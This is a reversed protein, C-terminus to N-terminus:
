TWTPPEVEGVFEAFDPFGALEPVETEAARLTLMAGLAIKAAAMRCSPQWGFGVGWSTASTCIALTFPVQEDGLRALCAKLEPYRDRGPDDILQVQEQVDGALLALVGDASSYLEQRKNGDTGVVLTELPFDQLVDPVEDPLQIWLPADRILPSKCPDFARGKGKVPAPPPLFAKGGKAGKADLRMQVNPPGFHQLALPM